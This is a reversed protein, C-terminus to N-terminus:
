KAAPACSWSVDDIRWGSSKCALASGTAHKSTDKALALSASSRASSTVKGKDNECSLTWSLNCALPKECNNKLEFDLGDSQETRTIAVCEDASEAASASAGFLAVALSCLFGIFLARRM